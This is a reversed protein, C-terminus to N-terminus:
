STANTLEPQLNAEMCFGFTQDGVTQTDWAAEPSLWMGCVPDLITGGWFPHADSAPTSTGVKACGAVVLFALAITTLVGSFRQM